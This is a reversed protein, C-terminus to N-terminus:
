ISKVSGITNNKLKYLLKVNETSKANKAANGYVNVVTYPKLVQCYPRVNRPISIPTKHATAVTIM